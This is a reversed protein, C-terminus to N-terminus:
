LTIKVRNILISEIQKVLQVALEPGPEERLLEGSIKYLPLYLEVSDSSSDWRWRISPAMKNIETLHMQIREGLYIRSM